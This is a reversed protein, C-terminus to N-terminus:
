DPKKLTMGFADKALEREYKELEMEGALFEATTEAIKTFFTSNAKDDIESLVKQGSNKFAGFNALALVSAVASLAAAPIKGDAAYRLSKVSNKGVQDVTRKLSAARAGLNGGLPQLYEGLDVEADVGIAKLMARSQIKVQNLNASEDFKEVNEKQDKTLGAWIFAPLISKTGTFLARATSFAVLNAQANTDGKLAKSITKAYWRTENIPYRFLGFVLNSGAFRDYAPRDWASRDFVIDRVGDYGNGGSAKDMYYALNKQATVSWEFPDRNKGDITLNDSNGYFGAKKLSPVQRFINGGTAKYADYSGKIVANLGGGKKSVFHSYVRVMDAGNGATWLFNLNAQAKALSGAAANLGRLGDPIPTEPGGKKVWDLYQLADYAQDTKIGFRKLKADLEKKSGGSKLINEIATKVEGVPKAIQEKYNREAKPTNYYKKFKGDIGSWLKGKLSESPPAYLRDKFVELSHDQPKKNKSKANIIDLASPGEDAFGLRKAMQMEYASMQGEDFDRVRKAESFIDGSLQNEARITGIVNKPNCRKGM